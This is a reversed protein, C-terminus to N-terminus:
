LSQRVLSPNPKQPCERDTRPRFLPCPSKKENRLHELSKIVCGTYKERYIHTQTPKIINAVVKINLNTLKKVCDSSDKPTKEM